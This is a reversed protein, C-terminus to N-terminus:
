NNFKLLGMGKSKHKRNNNSNRGLAYIINISKQYVDFSFYKDSLGKVSRKLVIKRQEGLVSDSVITLSKKLLEGENRGQLYREEVGNESAVIAYAGNMVNAGFGFAFWETAPGFLSIQVDKNNNIYVVELAIALYKEKFQASSNQASSKFAFFQVFVLLLLYPFFKFQM